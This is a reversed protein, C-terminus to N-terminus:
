NFFLWVHVDCNKPEILIALEITRSTVVNKTGSQYGLQRCVVGADTNSWSDDCITGWARRICVEVRGENRSSGGVLQVSGSRCAASFLVLLLLYICSRSTSQLQLQNYDIVTITITIM